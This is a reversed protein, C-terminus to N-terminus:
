AGSPSNSTGGIVVRSAVPRGVVRADLLWVGALAALLCGGILFRRAM